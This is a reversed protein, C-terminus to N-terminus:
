ANSQAVSHCALFADRLIIIGFIMQGELENRAELRNQEVCM